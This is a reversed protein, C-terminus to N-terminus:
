GIWIQAEKPINLELELITQLEEKAQPSIQGEITVACPVPPDQESITVEVSLDPAFNRAKDLIYAQTLHKISQLYADEQDQNASEIIQTADYSISATYQDWDELRIEILPSIVTIVLFIGCLMNATKSGTLKEPLLLRVCTCIISACIVALIYEKMSDMLQSREYLM